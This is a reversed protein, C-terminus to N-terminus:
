LIKKEELFEIFRDIHVAVRVETIDYSTLERFHGVWREIDIKHRMCKMLMLCDEFDVGTGRILKGAILDYGNLIGIYLRSYEKLLSHNGPEFPSEM